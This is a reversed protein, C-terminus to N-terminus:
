NLPASRLIERIFIVHLQKVHFVKEAEFLGEALSRAAM